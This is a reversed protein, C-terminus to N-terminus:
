RRQAKTASENYQIDAIELKLWTFDGDKLKWTIESKYPVRVGGFERYGKNVVLWDELTAGEKRDYYRKAEFSAMDGEVNFRFIGSATIGGFTMTAKASLTDLQEWQIQESLAASPWWCIEALNRLMTGQDTEPGKADAIPYLSLLKILMNGRGDVYKDRGALTMGPAAQIQTTWIFGPKDLTNWQEAEFPIWSGDPKTKMEGTQKLHAIQVLEKGVVGSRELWRQVVPPLPALTEKTLITRASIEKPFFAALEKKVMTNFSWSGYALVIGALAIINALTGFKADRWQTFILIQSLLVAPVAVMWWWDKKLFLFLVSAIFLLAVVLWLVGSTKSFSGALQPVDALKFAKAFGMLHILGHILLILAFLLRM